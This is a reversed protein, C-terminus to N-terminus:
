ESDFTVEHAPLRRWEMSRRDREWFEVVRLAGSSMTSGVCRGINAVHSPPDGYSGFDGGRKATPLDPAERFKAGFFVADTKSWRTAVLMRKDCGQCDIEILAAFEDYVGLMEPHFAAYRPVGNDDWWLPPGLRDVIDEYDRLM